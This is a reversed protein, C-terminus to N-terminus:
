KSFKYKWYVLIDVVCCASRNTSLYIKYTCSVNIVGRIFCNNASFVNIVNSPTSRRRLVHLFM